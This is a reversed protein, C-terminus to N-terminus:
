FMDGLGAMDMDGGKTALVLAKAPEIKGATLEQWEEPTLVAVLVKGTVEAPLPATLQGQAVEAEIIRPM